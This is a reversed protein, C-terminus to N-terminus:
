RVRGTPDVAPTAVRYRSSPRIFRAPQAHSYPDACGRVIVIAAGTRFSFPSAKAASATVSGSALPRSSSIAVNTTETARAAELLILPLACGMGRCRRFDIDASLADSRFADGDVGAYCWPRRPCGPVASASERVTRAPIPETRWRSAISVTTLLAEVRALSEGLCHNRGISFPAFAGRPLRGRRAPLWRDPDFRVARLLRLRPATEPANIVARLQTVQKHWEDERGEIALRDHQDDWLFFWCTLDSMIQAGENTAGFAYRVALDPYALRDFHEAAMRSSMMGMQQVWRKSQARIIDGRPNIRGPFPIVISPIDV